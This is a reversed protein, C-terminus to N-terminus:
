LTNSIHRNKIIDIAEDWTIEKTHIREILDSIFKIQEISFDGTEIQVSALASKLKDDM